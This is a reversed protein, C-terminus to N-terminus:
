LKILKEYEDKGGFATCAIIPIEPIEEKEMM